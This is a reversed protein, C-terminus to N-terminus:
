DKISDKVFQPVKGEKFVCSIQNEYRENQDSYGEDIYIGYKAKDSYPDLWEGKNTCIYSAECIKLIDDMNDFKKEGEGHEMLEDTYEEDGNGNVFVGDEKGVGVGYVNETPESYTKYVKVSNVMYPEISDDIWLDNDKLFAITNEYCGYVPFEIEHEYYVREEKNKGSFTLMGLRAENRLMTYDYQKMDRDYVKKFQEYLRAADHQVTKDKNRFSYTLEQDDPYKEAFGNDNRYAFLGDKYEESGVVKNMLTEDVDYPIILKRCRTSGNKM